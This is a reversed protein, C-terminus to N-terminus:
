QLHYKSFWMFGKNNTGCAMLHKFVNIAISDTGTIM